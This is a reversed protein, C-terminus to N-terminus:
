GQPLAEMLAHFGDHVATFNAEFDANDGQCGEKMHDIALMLANVRDRWDDAAGEPVTANQIDNALGLLLGADKCTADRRDPAESHWLPALRDHFATMEPSLASHDMPHEEENGHEEGGGEPTEPGKSKNGCAAAAVVLLSFLIVRM